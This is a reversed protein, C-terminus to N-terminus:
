ATRSLLQIPMDGIRFGADTDPDHHIPMLVQSAARVIGFTNLRHFASKLPRNQAVHDPCRVRAM